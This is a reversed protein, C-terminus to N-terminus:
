FSWPQRKVCGDVMMARNDMSPLLKGCGAAMAGM